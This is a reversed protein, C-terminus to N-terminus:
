LTLLGTVEQKERPVQPSRSKYEVVAISVTSEVSDSGAIWLWLGCLLGFKQLLYIEDRM